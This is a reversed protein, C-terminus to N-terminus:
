ESHIGTKGNEWDEPKINNEAEWAQLEEESYWKVLEDTYKATKFWKVMLTIANLYDYNAIYTALTTSINGLCYDTGGDAHPHIRSYSKMRYRGGVRDIVMKGDDQITVRMKGNPHTIDMGQGRISLNGTIFTIGDSALLVTEIDPLAKIDHFIQTALELPDLTAQVQKLVRLEKSLLDHNRIGEILEKQHNKICESQYKIKGNITEIKKQPIIKFRDVFKDMMVQEIKEKLDVPIPQGSEMLWHYICSQLILEINDM